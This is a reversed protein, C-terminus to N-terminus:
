SWKNTQNLKRISCTHQNKNVKENIDCFKIGLSLAELQVNTLSISSHNFVYSEPNNPFNHQTETTKLSKTLDSILNKTRKNIVTTVYDTFLNHENPSLEYLVPSRQSINFELLPIRPRISDIVNQAHRKLSKSNPYIHNRRLIKWYYKPYKHM